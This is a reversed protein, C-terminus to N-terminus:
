DMMMSDYLLNWQSLTLLDVKLELYDPKLKPQCSTVESCKNTSKWSSISEVEILNIQMYRYKLAMKNIELLIYVSQLRNCAHCLSCIWKPMKNIISNRNRNRDITLHYDKLLYFLVEDQDRGDNPKRSISFGITFTLSNFSCFYRSVVLFVM